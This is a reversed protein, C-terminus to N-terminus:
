NLEYYLCLLDSPYLVYGRDRFARVPSQKPTVKKPRLGRKEKSSGVKVPESAPSLKPSVAKGTSSTAPSHPLKMESPTPSPSPSIRAPSSDDLLDGQSSGLVGRPLGMSRRHERNVKTPKWDGAKWDPNSRDIKDGDM